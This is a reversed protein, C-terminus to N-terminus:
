KSVVDWMKATMPDTEIKSKRKDWDDKKESDTMKKRLVGTYMYMM